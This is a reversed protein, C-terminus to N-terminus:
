VAVNLVERMIVCVESLKLAGGEARESAESMMSGVVNNAKLVADAAGGDDPADAAQVYIAPALKAGLVGRVAASAAVAACVLEVTAARRLERVREVRKKLARVRKAKEEDVRTKLAKFADEAQQASGAVKAKLADYTGNKKVEALGDARYDAKKAWELSADFALFLEKEYSSANEAWEDSESDTLLATQMVRVVLDTNSVTRFWAEGTPFASAIGSGDFLTNRRLQDSEDDARKLSYEKVADEVGLTFERLLEYNRRAIARLRIREMVFDVGLNRLSMKEIPTADDEVDIVPPLMVVMASVDRDNVFCNAIAVYMAQILRETNWVMADIGSGDKMCGNEFNSSLWAFASCADSPTSLPAPPRTDSGTFASVTTRLHIITTSTVKNAGALVDVSVYCPHQLPVTGGNDSLECAGFRPKVRVVHGDLSEAALKLSKAASSLDGLWVPVTAFMPTVVADPRLLHLRDGYGFPLFFRKHLAKWRTRSDNWLQMNSTDYPRRQGDDDTFDVILDSFRDLLALFTSDRCDDPHEPRRPADHPTIVSADCDRQPQSEHAHNNWGVANSAYSSSFLSLVRTQALTNDVGFHQQFTPTSTLLGGRRYADIGYGREMFLASLPAHPLTSVTELSNTRQVASQMKKALDGMHAAADCFMSLTSADWEVGALRMNCLTYHLDHGVETARFLPDSTSFFRSHRKACLTKAMTAVSSAREFAMRAAGAVVALTDHDENGLAYYEVLENALLASLANLALLETQTKPSTLGRSTTSRGCLAKLMSLDYETLSPSQLERRLGSPVMAVCANFWRRASLAVGFRAVDATDVEEFTYFHMALLRTNGSELTELETQLALRSDRAAVSYARAADAGMSLERITWEDTETSIDTFDLNAERASPFLLKTKSLASHPLTRIWVYDIDIEDNTDSKDSKDAKDTVALEKLSRLFELTVDNGQLPLPEVPPSLDTGQRVAVLDRAELLRKKLTQLPSSTNKFTNEFKSSFASRIFRLKGRRMRMFERSFNNPIANIQMAARFMQLLPKLLYSDIWYKSDDTTLRNIPEDIADDLSRQFADIALELREIEALTGVALASLLEADGRTSVFTGSLPANCLDADEEIVIEAEIRIGGSLTPELDGMDIPNPAGMRREVGLYGLPAYFDTGESELLWRFLLFERKFKRTKTLRAFEDADDSLRVAGSLAEISNAFEALTFRTKVKDPKPPARLMKQIVDFGTSFVDKWSVTGTSVSKSIALAFESMIVAIPAVGSATLLLSLLGLSSSIAVAGRAIEAAKQQTSSPKSLFLDGAYADKAAEELRENNLIEEGATQEAAIWTRYLNLFSGGLRMVFDTNDKWQRANVKRLDFIAVGVPASYTVPFPTVVVSSLHDSAHSPDLQAEGIVRRKGFTTVGDIGVPQQVVRVTCKSPLKEGDEVIISFACPSFAQVDYRESRVFGNHANIRHVLESEAVNPYYPEESSRMGNVTFTYTGYQKVAQINVAWQTSVYDSAVECDDAHSLLKAEAPLDNRHALM